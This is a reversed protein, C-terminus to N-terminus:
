KVERIQITEVRDEGAIIDSLIVVQDGVKVRGSGKLTEIALKITKEPDSSFDIRYPIVSRTLWLKRRVTTMNTFAYILPHRPHFSAVNLATTGRRTIVIIAPCKISDSLMAASKAMEEKQNSPVREQVYGLGPANEVREAIKHLMEVCRVPFKGAATEGSLMIADAEEFVANAVDTVEARTPSPNHIMSELLHTAVIVRKGKIACERVIARQIIPLEEIPLEVGLDGRAVMVGDSAEVIEIMNKVAEQDEIKAIIASHGNNDEIIKRLQHIDEASRVFSLAIFDVDEELGFLIDKQDKQTISPLNVRIGPLNIHKRSGLKGGDVVKCKLATEQIEEVILNILGNDVTVRDGIKLDKVIDKYNVFVSQEESEEGPIIHFTFSEGVKLDLHDVQLDGTRIEPGQTDLLIAIPHKLVDKNLSKIARIVSRHFEHNGHSMNLRAINMGAEALAQIMKKDSTAPGITCIIKTKRYNVLENKM